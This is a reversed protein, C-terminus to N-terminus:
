KWRFLLVILCNLKMLTVEPKAIGKLNAQRPEIVYDIGHRKEERQWIQTWLTETVYVRM